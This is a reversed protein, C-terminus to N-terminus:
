ATPKVRWYQPSNIFEGTNPQVFWQTDESFGSETDAPADWWGNMGVAGDPALVYYSGNYNIWQDKLMRGNSDLYYIKNYQNTTDQIWGRQMAGTELDLWYWAGDEPDQVWGYQMKGTEPDLWYWQGDTDAYWGARRHGNADFSYWADDIEYWGNVYWTGDQDRYMWGESDWEWGNYPPVDIEDYNNAHYIAEIGRDKEASTGLSVQNTEGWNAEYVLGDGLYIASHGSYEIVDGPQALSLDTGIDTFNSSDGWKGVEHGFLYFYVFQAFGVCTWSNKYASNMQAALEPFYEEAINGMKCNDCTSGSSHGCAEGNVSFYSGDPYIEFLEELKQEVGGTQSVEEDAPDTESAWVAPVATFAMAATLVGAIGRNIAKKIMKKM